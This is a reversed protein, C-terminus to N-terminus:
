SCDPDLPITSQDVFIPPLITPKRRTELANQMHEDEESCHLKMNQDTGNNPPEQSKHFVESELELFYILSTGIGIKTEHMFPISFRIKPPRLLEQVANKV